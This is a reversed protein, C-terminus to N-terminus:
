EKEESSLELKLGIESDRAYTIGDKTKVQKAGDEDQHELIEAFQYSRGDGTEKFQIIKKNV